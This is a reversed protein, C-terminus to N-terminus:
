YVWLGQLVVLVPVPALVLVLVLWHHLLINVHLHFLPLLRRLTLLTKLTLIYNVPLTTRLDKIKLQFQPYRVAMEVAVVM